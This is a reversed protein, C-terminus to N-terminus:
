EWLDWEFVLLIGNFGMFDWIFLDWPNRWNEGHGRPVLEELKGRAGPAGNLRRGRAHGRRADRHVERDDRANVAGPGTFTM